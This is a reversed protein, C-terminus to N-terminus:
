LFYDLTQANAVDISKARQEHLLPESQDVDKEYKKNLVSITDFSTHKAQIFGGFLLAILFARMFRHNM